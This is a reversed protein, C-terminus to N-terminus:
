CVKKNNRKKTVAISHAIDYASRDGIGLEDFRKENKERNTM